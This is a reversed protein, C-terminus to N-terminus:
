QTDCSAATDESTLGYGRPFAVDVVALDRDSGNIDASPWAMPLRGLFEYQVSGDTDRFLVDSVGAGESGPLWAAVFATSANIERNVWLPRGSLFISVISLGQDQYQKLLKLDDYNPQQWALSTIDGQTEAYPREGFVAIVADIQTGEPVTEDHYIKGGAKAVQEAFGELLSTGIPFDDNSNGTGQWSITWGGSQMGINDAGSGVVLYHGAPDLPLLQNDNKLLVLSRRVADRALARHEDSGVQSRLPRGEKSPLERQMLGSEFKIKLIRLVAEDIRAESIVGSQVQAVINELTSLWDEPVMVM